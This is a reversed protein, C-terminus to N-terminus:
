KMYFNSTPRSTNFTKEDYVNYGSKLPLKFFDNFIVFVHDCGFNISLIFSSVLVVFFEKVMNSNSLGVHLEPSMKVYHGL